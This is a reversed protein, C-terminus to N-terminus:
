CGNLNGDIDPTGAWGNARLRAVIANVISQCLTPNDRINVEDGVTTLIPLDIATLAANGQIYLDSSVTALVPLAITTLAANNDIDLDDGVTTLVPLAITTLAANNSIGLGGAITTYCALHHVGDSNEVTFSGELISPVGECESPHPDYEGGCGDVGGLCVLLGLIGAIRWM